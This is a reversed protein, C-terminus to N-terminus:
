DTKQLLSRLWLGLLPNSFPEKEGVCAFDSIKTCYAKLTFSGLHPYCQEVAGAWKGLLSWMEQALSGRYPLFLRVKEEDMASTM